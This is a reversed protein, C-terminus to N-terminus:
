PQFLLIPLYACGNDIKVLIEKTVEFVENKGDWDDFHVKSIESGMTMEYLALFVDFDVGAVRRQRRFEEEAVRYAKEDSYLKRELVYANPRGEARLQKLAGGTALVDRARAELDSIAGVLADRNQPIRQGFRCANVEGQLRYAAVFLLVAILIVLLVVDRFSDPGGALLSPLGWFVWYSL